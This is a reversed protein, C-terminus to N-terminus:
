SRIATGLNLFERFREPLPATFRSPENHGPLTIVLRQAHLMLGGAKDARTGYLPDGVIPCGLYRLHVRLQHTRGTRPYLLVLSNEGLNRAVRWRTVALKGTPAVTFRKRNNSDRRLFTSLTGETARPCGRTIAVYRKHAQRERFQAALFELATQNWAAIIVGSTDKDLRHVIGPRKDAQGPLEGLGREKARFLLANALTGSWNGAGPHTVMGAAKNVVIVNEDEYLIDLPLDEPLFVPAPADEWALELLDGQSLRRSPKVERGNVLARLKRAKLQSRSDLRL